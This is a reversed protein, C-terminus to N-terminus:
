TLVKVTVWADHVSKAKPSTAGFRTRAAAVTLDAFDAFTVDKAIDKGTLM